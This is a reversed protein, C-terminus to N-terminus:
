MKAVTEIGLLALTRALTEATMWALQLRTARLEESEARLIPCAEYFASFRRTLEFAYDTLLHPEYTSAAAEITEGFKALQKALAREQPVLDLLSPTAAQPAFPIQAKDFISYIRTVAYQVTPGANGKFSVLKDWDFVYDSMRNQRLDAYKVAGIGIKRAVEAL